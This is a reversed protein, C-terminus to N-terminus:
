SITPLWTGLLLMWFMKWPCPLELTQRLCAMCLLAQLSADKQSAAVLLLASLGEPLAFPLLRRVKFLFDM